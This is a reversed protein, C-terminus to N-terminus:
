WIWFRLDLIPTFAESLPCVHILRLKVLRKVFLLDGPFHALLSVVGDADLVRRSANVLRVAMGLGLEQDKQLSAHLYRHFALLEVAPGAVPEDDRTVGLVGGQGTRLSADKEPRLFKLSLSQWLFNGM